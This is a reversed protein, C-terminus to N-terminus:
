LLRSKQEPTLLACAEVKGFWRYRNRAVIDYVWDRLPRPLLCLAKLVRFWGGMADFLQLYGESKTFVRGDRLLLYTEDMAIRYHRYLASGIDGQASTLAIRGERDHKMLWSAGGSCLVCFGDFVFLPRSDDFPPVAPDDRYSFAPRAENM